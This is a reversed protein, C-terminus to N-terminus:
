DIRSFRGRGAAIASMEKSARQMCLSVNCNPSNGVRSANIRESARKPLSSMPFLCDAEAVFRQAKVTNSLSDVFDAITNRTVVRLGFVIVAREIVVSIMGLFDSDISCNIPVSGM